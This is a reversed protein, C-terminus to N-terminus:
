ISPIPIFNSASCPLPLSSTLLRVRCISLFDNMSVEVDSLHGVYMRMPTTRETLWLRATRDRSASAFYVGMPGWQVDWVPDSHGKYAVLNKATETSWLRVSGDQSSSLLHKPPGASGSIPDFALSYVPGSHGILKRVGGGNGSHRDDTDQRKGKGKLDWLRIVSEASGAALYTSDESLATSTMGEQNDFITYTCVSPLSPRHYRDGTASIHGLKIRKRQDAVGKIEKDLDMTSFNRNISVSPIYEEPTPAVLAPEGAVEVHRKAVMKATAVDDAPVEKQVVAPSGVDHMVVDGSREAQAQAQAQLEAAKKAAESADVKKQAAAEEELHKELKQPISPPALKLRPGSDNFENANVGSPVLTSAFGNLRYIDAHPLPAAVDAVNLRLRTHVITRVADKFGTADKDTDWLAELGLDSLWGVLLGFSGKSLNVIYPETRFMKLLPSSLIHIPSSVHEIQVLDRHHHTQHAHAHESFFEQALLVCHADASDGISLKPHYYETLPKGAAGYNSEVLDLFTHVFVPYLLERLEPKWGELGAEIWQRFKIYGRIRVTTDILRLEGAGGGAAALAQSAKHRQLLDEAQAIHDPSLYYASTSASVSQAQPLNRKLMEKTSLGAETPPITAIPPPQAAAASSSAAGNLDKAAATFSSTAPVEAGSAGNAASGKLAGASAKAAEQVQHKEKNANEEAIFATMVGVPKTYNNRKLYELTQENALLPNKSVNGIPAAISTMNNVNTQTQPTQNTANAGSGAKNNDSM